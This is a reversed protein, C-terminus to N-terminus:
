NLNLKEYLDKQMYINTLYKYQKTARLSHGEIQQTLVYDTNKLEEDSFITGLDVDGIIIDPVGQEQIQKKFAITEEESLLKFLVYSRQPCDPNLNYFINKDFYQNIAVPLFQMNIYEATTTEYLNPEREMLLKMKYKNNIKNKYVPYKTWNGMIKYEELNKTKIYEAIQKAPFSNYIIENYANIFSWFVQVVLFIAVFTKTVFRENISFDVETKNLACWYVFIILILGLGIHHPTTHITNLIALLSYPIIYLLLVNYSKFKHILFINIMLGFLCIFMYKIYNISIPDLSINFINLIDQTEGLYIINITFSYLNFITIEAFSGAFAYMFSLLYNKSTTYPTDSFVATFCKDSTADPYILSSLIGGVFIMIIMAFIQKNFIFKRLENKNENIYEILWVLMIGAGIVLGHMSSLCLLTIASIFQFPKNNRERYISAILFLAFCFISYPRNIISYMCFIYFTFPLTLKVIRPFPSKFILLYIAGMMFLLNPIKLGIEPNINTSSFCKLILFWLPMHCEFHPIFFLINKISEKSIGWAEFEDFRPEHFYSVIAVTICFFVYFIIELYNKKIWNM